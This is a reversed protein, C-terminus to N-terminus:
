PSAPPPGVLGVSALHKLIMGASEAVTATSTDVVLDPRPPEEFPAYIGRMKQEALAQTRQYAEKPYRQRRVELPSTLLVEAFRSGVESRAARRSTEYPTIMAVIVAIGSRSLMRAAYRVRRAQFERDGRSFGIEPVLLQRLANWLLAYASWALLYPQDRGLAIASPRYSHLFPRLIRRGDLIETKWGLAKLRVGVERSITSKGTGARGEIWVVFGYPAASANGPM